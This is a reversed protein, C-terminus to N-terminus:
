VVGAEGKTASKIPTIFKMSASTPAEPVMRTPSVESEQSVVFTELPSFTRIVTRGSSKRHLVVVALKGFPRQHFRYALGTKKLDDILAERDHSEIDVEDFCSTTDFSNVTVDFGKLCRKEGRIIKHLSGNVSSVVCRQQQKDYALPQGVTVADGEKVCLKYPLDSWLGININIKSPAEISVHHVAAGKIPINLGKKIEFQNM